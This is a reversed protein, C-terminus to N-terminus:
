NQRKAGGQQKDGPRGGRGLWTRPRTGDIDLCIARINYWALTAYGCTYFLVDTIKGGGALRSKDSGYHSGPFARCVHLALASSGAQGTLLDRSAELLSKRVEAIKAFRSNQCSDQSAPLQSKGPHSWDSWHQNIFALEALM